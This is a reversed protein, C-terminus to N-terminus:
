EWLGTESEWAVFEPHEEQTWKFRGTHVDVVRRYGGPHELTEEGGEKRWVPQGDFFQRTLATLGGVSPSAEHRNGQLRRIGQVLLRYLADRLSAGNGVRRIVWCDVPCNEDDLDAEKKARFQLMLLTEGDFCYVQPCRYRVAYRIHKTCENTGGISVGELVDM